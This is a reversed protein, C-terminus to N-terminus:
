LMGHITSCILCYLLFIKSASFCWVICLFYRPIDDRNVMESTIKHVATSALPVPQYPNVLTELTSQDGGALDRCALEVIKSGSKLFGTTEIDFVIITPDAQSEVPVKQEGETFSGEKFEECSSESVSARERTREAEDSSSRSCTITEEWVIEDKFNSTLMIKSSGDEDVSAEDRSPAVCEALSGSNQIKVISRSNIERVLSSCGSLSPWGHFYFSRLHKIHVHRSDILYRCGLSSKSAREVKSTVADFNVRSSRGGVRYCRSCGFDHFFNSFM